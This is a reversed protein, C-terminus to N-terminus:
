FGLLKHKFYQWCSKLDAGTEFSFALNTDTELLGNKYRLTSCPTATADELVKEDPLKEDLNKFDIKEQKGIPDITTEYDRWKGDTFVQLWAHGYDTQGNKYDYGIILRVDEKLSPRGLEEVLYIFNSYTFLSFYKCDTKGEKLAKGKESSWFNHNYSLKKSTIAHAAKLIPLTECTKTDISSIIDELHQDTQCTQQISKNRVESKLSRAGVYGGIPLAYYNLFTLFAGYFAVRKLLNKIKM